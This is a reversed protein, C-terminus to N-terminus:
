GSHIWASTIGCYRLPQLAGLGLSDYSDLQLSNWGHGPAPEDFPHDARSVGPRVEFDLESRFTRRIPQLRRVSGDAAFRSCGVHREFTSILLYRIAKQSV